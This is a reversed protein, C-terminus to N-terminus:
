GDKKGARRLRRSLKRADRYKDISRAHTFDERIPFRRNRVTREGNRELDFTVLNSLVDKVFQRFEKQIEEIKEPTLQYVFHRSSRDVIVDNSQEMLRLRRLVTSRPEQLGHCISEVTAPRELGISGAYLESVIDLNAYKAARVFRRLIRAM